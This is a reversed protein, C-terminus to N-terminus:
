YITACARSDSVRVALTTQKISQNKWMTRWMVVEQHLTDPSPLDDRNYELSSNEDQQGINSLILYLAQIAQQALDGWTSFQQLLSTYQVAKIYRVSHKSEM